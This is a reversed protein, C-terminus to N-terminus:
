VPEMGLITMSLMTDIEDAYEEIFKGFWVDIKKSINDRLPRFLPRPPMGPWGPTGKGGEARDGTGYEMWQAVKRVELTKGTETKYMANRKIGIAFGNDVRWYSISDKLLETCEWIKKSFGMEKKWSLYRKTLPAWDDKFRQSTIAKQLAEVYQDAMYITFHKLLAVKFKKSVKTLNMIKRSGPRWIRFNEIDLYLDM